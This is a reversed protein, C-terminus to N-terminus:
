RDLKRFIYSTNEAATLFIDTVYEMKLMYSDKLSEFYYEALVPEKTGGQGPKWTGWYNGKPLASIYIYLPSMVKVIGLYNRVVYPEMEQFSACNWFLDIEFNSWAPMAWSPLIIIKGRVFDKFTGSNNPKLSVAQQYPIVREGFVASLYQNAVYLQPPIDFLLLTAHPYLGALVEINRGMGSGLECVCMDDHFEIFAAADAVMSCYNLHTLSWLGSDIEAVDEPNGFFSTPCKGLDLKALQFKKKVLSYFYPTLNEPVIINFKDLPFFPNETFIKELFHAIKLSGKFKLRPEIRGRLLLDSAGFSNLIINKRRRFNYLGKEKLEPLFFREYAQWYNTPKYLNDAKSLDSMMDNLLSLDDQVQKKFVERQNM